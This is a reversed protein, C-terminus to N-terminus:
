VSSRVGLISGRSPRPRSIVPCPCSSRPMLMLAIKATISPATASAVSSQPQAVPPAGATFCSPRSFCGPLGFGGEGLRGGRGTGGARLPRRAGFGVAPQHEVDCILAHGALLRLGERLKQGLHYARHLAGGPGYPVQAVGGEVVQGNRAIALALGFLLSGRPWLDSVLGICGLVHLFQKSFLRLSESRVNKGGLPPRDVGRRARRSAKPSIIRSGNRNELCNRLEVKDM